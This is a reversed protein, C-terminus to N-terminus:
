RRKATLVVSVIRELDSTQLSSGSPLCLGREFIRQSVRGGVCPFGRYLPQLHMPKWAPRAEVDERELAIRLDEPSAGFAETDVEVVTLWRTSFSGPAEPMFSLGPADLAQQYYANIERCRAVKADLSRLQGRGVAALLSSLRYNYGVEVHEYHPAPERAQTALHRAREEWARHQTVLMGGGGTTIIKNGNFSFAGLAGFTGAPRGDFRAGLAEAADEVLPVEYKECM